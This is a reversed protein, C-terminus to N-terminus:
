FEIRCFPYNNSLLKYFCNICINNFCIACYHGRLYQEYCIDCGKDNYSNNLLRNMKNNDLIHLDTFTPFGNFFFLVPTNYLHINRCGACIQSFRILLEIEDM